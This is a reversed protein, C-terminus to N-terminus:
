NILAQSITSRLKKMSQKTKFEVTFMHIQCVMVTYDLIERWAEDVEDHHGGEGHQGVHHLADDRREDLLRGARPEGAEPAGPSSRRSRREM